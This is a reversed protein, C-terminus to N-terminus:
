FYSILKDLGMAALTMFGIMMLVALKPYKNVFYLPQLAENIKKLENGYGFPCGKSHQLGDIDAQQDTVRDNIKSIESTMENFKNDVMMALLGIAKQTPDNHDITKNIIQLMPSQSNSM